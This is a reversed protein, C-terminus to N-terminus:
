HVQDAVQYVTFDSQSEQFQIKKKMYLLVLFALIERELLPYILRSNM